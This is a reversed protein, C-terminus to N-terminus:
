DKRIHELRGSKDKLAARTLAVSIGDRDVKMNDSVEKMVRGVIINSQASSLYDLKTIWRDLAERMGLLHLTDRDAKVEDIEVFAGLNEDPKKLEISM